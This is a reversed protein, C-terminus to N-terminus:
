TCFDRNISFIASSIIALLIGKNSSIRSSDASSTRITKNGLFRETSGSKNISDIKINLSM